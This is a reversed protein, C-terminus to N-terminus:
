FYLNTKLFKNPNSTYIKKFEKFKEMASIFQKRDRAFTIRLWFGLDPNEEWSKQDFAYCPGIQTEIGCTLYFNFCFDFFNINELNKIKVFTNFASKKPLKILIDENLIPQLLDFNEAYFALIDKYYKKYNEYSNLLKKDSVEKLPEFFSFDVRLQKIAKSITSKKGEIFYDVSRLFSEFCILGTFNSAVPFCQRQESAKEIFQMLQMNKSLLYGIRFAALNKTKSYGKAIAINELRNNRSAIVDSEQYGDKNFILDFFLEDILVLINKEAAKNILRTLEEPTYIEGTPNNPQALVILKTRVSINNIIKNISKFSEQKFSLVERVQLDWYEASFKYLYYTPAAVLVESNPFFKSIYEFVLTIAGTSGTTLCVDEEIYKKEKFKANEMLALAKRAIRNGKPSSYNRYYRDDQLDKIVQSIFEPFAKRDSTGSSLKIPKIGISSLLTQFDEADYIKENVHYYDYKKRVLNVEGLYLLKKAEEFYKRTPIKIKM